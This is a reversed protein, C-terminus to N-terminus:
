DDTNEVQCLNYEECKAWDGIECNGVKSKLECFLQKHTKGRINPIGYKRAKNKYAKEGWRRLARNSSDWNWNLTMNRTKNDVPVSVGNVTVSEVGDYNERIQRFPGCMLVLAFLIMIAVFMICTKKSKMSKMM